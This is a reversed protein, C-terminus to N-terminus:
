RQCWALFTSADGLLLRCSPATKARCAIMATHTKQLQYVATLAAGWGM